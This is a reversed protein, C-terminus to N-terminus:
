FFLSIIKEDVRLAVVPIKSEDSRRTSQLSLAQEATLFRPMSRSEFRLRLECILLTLFCANIYRRTMLLTLRRIEFFCEARRTSERASYLIIKQTDSKV